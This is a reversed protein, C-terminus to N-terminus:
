SSTKCACAGSEWPLSAPPLSAVAVVNAHDQAFVIVTIRQQQASCGFWHKAGEPSILVANASHRITNPSRVTACQRM